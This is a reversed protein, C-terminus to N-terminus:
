DKQMARRIAAPSLSTETFDEPYGPWYGDRECRAYIELLRRNEDRGIEVSVSKPTLTYCACGHLGSKEIAIFIFAELPQGISEALDFYFAAQRHYGFNEIERQFESPSANTTTKIDAIAALSRPRWIDVKGKCLLRYGDVDRESIIALEEDDEDDTKQMVLAASPQAAIAAAMAEITDFDERSIANTLAEAGFPKHQGCYSAGCHTYTATNRCHEGANKGSKLIAACQAAIPHRSAFEDPELMYTHFASGFRMAETPERPNQRQWLLHAPSFEGITDLAHKSCLALKHYTADDIKQKGLQVTTKEITM